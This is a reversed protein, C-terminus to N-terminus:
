HVFLMHKNCLRRWIKIFGTSILYPKCGGGEFSDNGGGTM